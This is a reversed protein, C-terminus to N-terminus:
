GIGDPDLCHGSVAYAGTSIGSVHAYVAQTEQMLQQNIIVNM